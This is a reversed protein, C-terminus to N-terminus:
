GEVLKLYRIENGDIVAILIDGREVPRYLETGVPLLTAMGDAFEEGEQYSRTISGAKDGITLEEELVWDVDEANQYVVGGLQFM